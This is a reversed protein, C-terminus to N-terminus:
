SLLLTVYLFKLGKLSLSLDPQRCTTTCYLTTLVDPTCMTYLKAWVRTNNYLLQTCYLMHYTCLNNVVSLDFSTFFVLRDYSLGFFCQLCINVVTMFDLFCVLALCPTALECAFYSVVALGIIAFGM